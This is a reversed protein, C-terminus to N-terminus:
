HATENEKGKSLWKEISHLFREVNKEPTFEDYYIKKSKEGHEKIKKPHDVYFQIASSLANVDGAPVMIGNQDKKIIHHAAGCQDTSIIAKGLQSAENLVAGWGDYRSPLVFLDSQSIYTPVDEIPKPGAFVVKKNIGLQKVLEQYHSGGNDHGLLILVWNDSQKIRSFALILDSIGKGEYLSGVYLLVKKDDSSLYKQLLSESKVNLMDVTYFLPEIKDKQIGWNIFDNKALDGQSFVGLAYRNIKKAYSRKLLTSVIPQLINFLLVNYHLKRALGIGSRESWHIWKVDNAILIDLLKKTFPYSIGPVVHIREKWQPITKLAHTVDDVYQENSPLQANDSWGLKVRENHFKEFYRVQLDVQKSLAEFFFSQHPSAINEWICIKIPTLNFYNEM